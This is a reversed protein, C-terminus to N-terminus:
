PVLLWRIRLAHQALVLDLKEDLEDAMPLVVRCQWSHASILRRVNARSRMPAAMMNMTSTMTTTAVSNVTPGATTTIVYPWRIPWARSDCWTTPTTNANTDTSSNRASKTRPKNAQILASTSAHDLAPARPEPSASCAARRLTNLTQPATLRRARRRGGRRRRVSVEAASGSGASGGCFRPGQSWAASVLTSM